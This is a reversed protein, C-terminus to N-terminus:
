DDTEKRHEDLYSLASLRQAVRADAARVPDHRDEVQDCFDNIKDAIDRLVALDRDTIVMPSHDWDDAPDHAAGPWTLVQAIRDFWSM